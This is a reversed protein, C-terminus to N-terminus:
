SSSGSSPILGGQLVRDDARIIHKTDNFPTQLNNIRRRIESSKTKHDRQNVSTSRAGDANTQQEGVNTIQPRLVVVQSRTSCFARTRCAKCSEFSLPTLVPARRRDGRDNLTSIATALQDLSRQWIKNIVEPKRTSYYKLTIFLDSFKEYLLLNFPIFHWV